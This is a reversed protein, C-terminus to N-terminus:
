VFTAELRWKTLRTMPQRSGAITLQHVPLWDHLDEGAVSTMSHVAALKERQDASGSRQYRKPGRRLRAQRNNAIQAAAGHLGFCRVPGREQAAARRRPHQLGHSLRGALGSQRGFGGRNVVLEFIAPQVVPLDAPKQGNLLGGVYVGAQRYAGAISARYSILGGAVVFERWAYSAPAAHRSALAVLESRHETFMPDTSVLLAGAQLEVLKAFAPEFDRAHVEVVPLQVRLTAAADKAEQIFSTNGRTSPNVLMAITVAGPVLEHLIELRKPLLEGTLFSVGTLNGGPRNFSEVLGAQVPDVAVLFVIPITATAAKAVGPSGGGAVIVEVNRRVLDEAM